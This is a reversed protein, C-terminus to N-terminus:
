KLIKQAAQLIAEPESMRGSGTKRCSLWGADPGIINCGDNRLTEMNRQVSQKCWMSSSMAPAILVPCEVQLYLTAVLDSALGNAFQGILNATAPAVIMLDANEALEIHPGLPWKGSDFSGTAVPRGSLASLTAAGIFETAASTMAVRVQYGAQALKSCLAASKYAAIGGGIALIVNQGGSNAM